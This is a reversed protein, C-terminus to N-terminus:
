PADVSQRGGSGLKDVASAYWLDLDLLLQRILRRATSEDDGPGALGCPCAWTLALPRSVPRDVANSPKTPWVSVKQRDDFQQWACM